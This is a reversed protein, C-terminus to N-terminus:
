PRLPIAGRPGPIQALVISPSFVIERGDEQYTGRPEGLLSEFRVAGQRGLMAPYGLRASRWGVTLARNVSV